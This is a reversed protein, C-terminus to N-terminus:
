EHYDDIFIILFNVNILYWRKPLFAQICKEYESLYDIFQSSFNCKCQRDNFGMKKECLMFNLKIQQCPQSDTKIKQSVEEM